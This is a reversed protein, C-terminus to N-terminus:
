LPSALDLQGLGDNSASAVGRSLGSSCIPVNGSLFRQGQEILLRADKCGQEVSCSRSRLSRNVTLADDHFPLLMAAVGARGIWDARREGNGHKGQELGLLEGEHAVPHGKGRADLVDLLKSRAHGSSGGVKQLVEFANDHCKASQHLCVM